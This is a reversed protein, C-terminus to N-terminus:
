TGLWETADRIADFFRVSAGRETAANRFFETTEADANHSEVIAIKLGGQAYDDALELLETESARIYTRPGFILVSTVGADKCATTIQATSIRISDKDLVYGVPRRVFLYDDMAAITQAPVGVDMDDTYKEM